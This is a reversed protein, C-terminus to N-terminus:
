LVGRGRCTTVQVAVWLDGTTSALRRVGDTYWTQLEYAKGNQLYSQNDAVVNIIRTVKVKPMEFPLPLPGYVQYLAEEYRIVM